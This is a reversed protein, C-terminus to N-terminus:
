TSISLNSIQLDESNLRLMQQDESNIRVLQESDFTLLNSLGHENNNTNTGNNANTTAVTTNAHSENNTAVSDNTPHSQYQQQQQQLHHQHPHFNGPTLNWGGGTGSTGNGGRGGAANTSTLLNHMTFTNTNNLNSLNNNAATSSPNFKPEWHTAGAGGFNNGHYQQPQTQQGFANYDNIDMPPPVNPNANNGGGSGANTANYQHNPSILQQNGQTGGAVTIAMSYPSPTNHTYASSPSLPQPSPTLEPPTRYMGFPQPSTDRPETKIAPINPPNWCTM